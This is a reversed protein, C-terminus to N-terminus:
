RSKELFVVMILEVHIKILKVVFVAKLVQQNWILKTKCYHILHAKKREVLSTTM